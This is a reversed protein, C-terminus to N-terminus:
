ALNKKQEDINETIRGQEPNLMLFAIDEMLTRIPPPSHPDTYKSNIEKRIYDLFYGYGPSEEYRDDRISFHLHRDSSIAGQDDAQGSRRRRGIRLLPSM